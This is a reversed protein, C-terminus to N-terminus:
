ILKLVEELVTLEKKSLAYKEDLETENCRIFETLSDIRSKISDDYYKLVKDQIISLYKLDINEIHKRIKELVSVNDTSYLLVTSFEEKLKRKENDCYEQKNAKLTREYIEKERKERYELDLIDKKLREIVNSNTNIEDQIQKKQRELASMRQNYSDQVRRNHEELAAKRKKWANQDSYDPEDVWYTETKEGFLWDRFGAFWGTRSVTKTKKVKKQKVGPDNGIKQKEREYKQRDMNSRYREDSLEREVSNKQEYKNRISTEMNNICLRKEQIKNKYKEFESRIEKENFREINNNVEININEKTKPVTTVFDSVKLIAEDYLHSLNNQIRTDVDPVLQGNIYNSIYVGYYKPPEAGYYNAFTVFEEYTKAKEDLDSDLFELLNELCRKTYEYLSHRNESDRSILFNELRKKKDENQSDLRTIIKKAKEINISKDDKAKLQENLECEEDLNSKIREIIQSLTYAVSDEIVRLYEGSEIIKYLGKEFEAFNSEEFLKERDAITEIDEEFVRDKNLDRSALAKVASIGYIQYSIESSDEGFCVNLNEKDKEIKSQITEGESVRLLDIFNQVFIFKKQYNLLISIFDFDTSKVGNSSLLYICAHAKKIEDLTIERHKDAIGNLGPTDSIVIPYDVNLFNIYISVSKISEAVNKESNVTTYEILKNLDRMSETTGDVYEIECTNLKPDESSVNYIYTVTATTETAAHKLVDKGIIANIFTSKGSSFEGVVVLRFINDNLRESLTHLEEIYGSKQVAKLKKIKNIQSNIIDTRRM